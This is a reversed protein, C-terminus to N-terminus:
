TGVDYEDHRRWWVFPRTQPWGEPSEEWSEMRGLPTTDLLTWVTGLGEVGRDAVQYTLYVRDDGDRLFVSYGFTEEGAATTAGFDVNFDSRASSVWPFSWGMRARYAELKALPAKSVLVLSTDRAHLHAVHPLSDVFMSCGTCGAAWDDG